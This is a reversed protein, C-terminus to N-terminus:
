VESNHDPAATSGGSRLNDSKRDNQHHKISAASEIKRTMMLM